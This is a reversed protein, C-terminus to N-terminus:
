KVTRLMKGGNWRKEEEEKGRCCMEVAMESFCSMMSEVSIRFESFSMAPLISAAEKASVGLGMGSVPATGRYVGNSGVRCTALTLSSVASFIRMSKSSNTSLNTVYLVLM